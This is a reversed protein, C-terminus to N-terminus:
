PGTTGKGVNLLSGSHPSVSEPQGWLAGHRPWCSKVLSYIWAHKKLLVLLLPQPLANNPFDSVAHERKDTTKLELDESTLIYRPTVMSVMFFLLSFLSTHPPSPVRSLSSAPCLYQSPPMPFIPPSKLQPPPLSPFVSPSPCLISSFVLLVM